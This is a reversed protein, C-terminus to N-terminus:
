GVRAVRGRELAAGLATRVETAISDSRNALARQRLLDNITAVVSWYRTTEEGWREPEYAHFWEVVEAWRWLRSRGM